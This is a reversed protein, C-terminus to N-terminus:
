AQVNPGLPCTWQVALLVLKKQYFFITCHWHTVYGITLALNVKRHTHTHTHTHTRARSLSCMPHYDEEEKKKVYMRDLWFWRKQGWAVPSSYTGLSRRQPVSLRGTQVRAHDSHLVVAHVQRGAVDLQGQSVFQSVTESRRHTVVM